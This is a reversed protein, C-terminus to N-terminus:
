IGKTSLLTRITKLGISLDLWWGRHKIYYLDYSLKEKTQELGPAFHSHNDHYIQAWGSLGPSILHRLDYYPIEKQYMVVYDEREPRPGILSQDGKLVSWAQPLEDIRTKRLFRGVKTVRRASLDQDTTMSRFKIIKFMKNGRGVRTERYFVPGGDSLKIAPVVLLYLPLSLVGIILACVIDAGRKLFNYITIKPTSINELIWRETLLSVPIRHFVSEYLEQASILTAGRFILQYLAPLKPALNQNYPNFVIIPNGALNLGELSDIEEVSANYDRNAKLEKALEGTEGGAGIFIFRERRGRYLHQVLYRRWVAILIFSIFLYIFLNVRPAIRVAPVYYFFAIALITNIIQATAITRPLEKKFISTPRRYLDFIFFVVIWAALIVSFPGIHSVFLEESPFQGYRIFLTLWLAVVFLLVDGILLISAVKSNRFKMFASLVM